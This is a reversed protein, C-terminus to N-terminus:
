LVFYNVTHDPPYAWHNYHDLNFKLQIMSKRLTKTTSITKIPEILLKNIHLSIILYGKGINIAVHSKKKSIKPKM